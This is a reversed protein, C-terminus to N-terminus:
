DIKISEIPAFKGNDNDGFDVDSVYIDCFYKPYKVNYTGKYFKKTNKIVMYSSFGKYEKEVYTFPTSKNAYYYADDPSKSYSEILNVKIIQTKGEVVTTVTLSSPNTPNNVAVNKIELTVIDGTKFEENLYNGIISNPEVISEPALFSYLVGFSIFLGFAILVLNGFGGCIYSLFCVIVLAVIILLVMLVVSM